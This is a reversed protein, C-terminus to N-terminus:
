VANKERKAIVIAQMTNNNIFKEEITLGAQKLLDSVVEEPNKHSIIIKM